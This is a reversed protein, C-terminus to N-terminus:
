YLASRYYKGTEVALKEDVACCVSTQAGHTLSKVFPWVVTSIVTELVANNYFPFNRLIETTIVGPHLSYTTVGHGKFYLQVLDSIVLM